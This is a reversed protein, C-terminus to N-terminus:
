SKNKKPNRDKPDAYPDKPAGHERDYLPLVNTNLDLDLEVRTQPDEANELPIQTMPGLQTLSGAQTSLDLELEDNKPAAPTSGPKAAESDRPVQTLPGMYTGPGGLNTTLDLELTGPKTQSFDSDRPIQTLLGVNTPRDLISDSGKSAEEDAAATKEEYTFARSPETPAKAEPAAKAAAAPALSSAPAMAKMAGQARAARSSQLSDPIGTSFDLNVTPPLTTPPPPKSPPAAGPVTPPGAPTTNGGIDYFLTYLQDISPEHGEVETVEIPTSLASVTIPDAINLQTNVPAPTSAPAQRSTAAPVLAPAPAVTARPVAAFAAPASTDPGTPRKTAPPQVTAPSTKPGVTTRGEIRQHTVPDWSSM